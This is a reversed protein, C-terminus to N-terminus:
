RDIAAVGGFVGYRLGEEQQEGYALCEARVPCTKCVAVAEAHEPTGKRAFWAAVGKGKCAADRKWTSM